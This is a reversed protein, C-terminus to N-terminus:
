SKFDDNNRFSGLGLTDFEDKALSRKVGLRHLVQNIAGIRKTQLPGEKVKGDAYLIASQTGVGGFYNTEVYAIPGSQAHTQLLQQIAPSLFVFAELEEGTATPNAAVIEDHLADTLPILGFDQPLTITNASHLFSAIQQILSSEAIIVKIYHSM